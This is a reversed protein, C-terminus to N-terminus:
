LSFYYQSSKMANHWRKYQFQITFARSIYFVHLASNYSCQQCSCLSIHSHPQQLHHNSFFEMAIFTRSLPFMGARLEREAGVAVVILESLHKTSQDMYSSDSFSFDLVCSFSHAVVLAEPQTCFTLAGLCSRSLSFPQRFCPPGRAPDREILQPSTQFPAARNSLHSLLQM